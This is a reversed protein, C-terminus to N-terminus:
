RRASSSIARIAVRRRLREVHAEFRVALGIDPWAHSPKDRRLANAVVGHDSESRVGRPLDLAVLDSPCRSRPQPWRATRSACLSDLRTRWQARTRSAFFVSELLAVLADTHRYSSCSRNAGGARRSPTSSCSRLSRYSNPGDVARQAARVHNAREPARALEAAQEIIWALIVAEGGGVARPGAPSPASCWCIRASWGRARGRSHAPRRRRALAAAVRSSWCSAM